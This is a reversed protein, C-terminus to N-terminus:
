RLLKEKIKEDAVRLCKRQNQWTLLKIASSFTVWKYNEHELKDIKVKGKKVEASYLKFTQGSYNKRDALKKNYNYKGKLKYSTIKISKLGTEERLERLIAQKDTENKEKGGKVFEWGKWHLKRKLLLYKIKNKEKKYM